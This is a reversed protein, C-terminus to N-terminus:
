GAHSPHCSREGCQQCYFQQSGCQQQSRQESELCIYQQSGLNYRVFRGRRWWLRWTCFQVAFISGADFIEEYRTETFDPFERM